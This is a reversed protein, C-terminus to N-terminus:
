MTYRAMTRAFTAHMRACWGPRAAFACFDCTAACVNTHNLHTNWVFYAADGHRQERAHNALGGLGLLDRTEYLAVGDEFDLRRGGLVKERIPELRRDTLRADALVTTM